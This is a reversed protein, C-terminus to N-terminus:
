DRQQIPRERMRCATAFSSPIQRVDSLFSQRYRGGGKSGGEQVVEGGCTAVRSDCTVGSM